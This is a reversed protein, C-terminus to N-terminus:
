PVAGARQGAFFEPAGALAHVHRRWLLRLAHQEDHSSTQTSLEGCHPSVTMRTQPLTRGTQSKSACEPVCVQLMLDCGRGGGWCADLCIAKVFCLLLRMSKCVHYQGKRQLHCAHDCSLAHVICSGVPVVLPLCRRECGNVFRSSCCLNSIRQPAATHTDAKLQSFQMCTQWCACSRLKLSWLERAVASLCLVFFFVAM